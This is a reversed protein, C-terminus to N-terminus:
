FAFLALLGGVFTWFFGGVVALLYSLRDNRDIRQLGVYSRIVRITKQSTFADALTMIGMYFGFGFIVTMAVGGGSLTVGPITLFLVKLAFLCATSTNVIRDPNM